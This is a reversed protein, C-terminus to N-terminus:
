GTPFYGELYANRFKGAPDHGALLRAFDAARDYSSLIREPTASTLKGWHPRAGLPLLEEEMAAVVEMVAEHDPVWTFHFAVSDRGYAPSLWLEDAAVTRVESVQVVPAIREGLGRLAAFAASAAERPLLLESQLEDGNSPTFDPRFHPLREHWPGPAGLQETCHLPPMAPVPHHHRDAPRAGLWPEEPAPPGPLDTRCKLWVVGEGSRWDTFVSVSYAAGFIEEFSDDLRDLPLGTWVWQAVDYAPEIDLTMATVVGLGGLGVVAGNLRDPDDDRTIRTLEGGPGVIELGAVAAALCRQTSGSGHTATACAGAVTIHPLSALNALAFGEAHLAQAVQAYRMGAAVTATRKGPDIEVRHPLRDLSVLDGDTDAIRNFSHGTGLVRVRDASGVIRRLEDATHPHHLRAASFTINGAWNTPAGTTPM